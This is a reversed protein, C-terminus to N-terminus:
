KILETIKNISMKYGLRCTNKYSFKDYVNFQRGILAYFDKFEGFVYLNLFPEDLIELESVVGVYDSWVKQPLENNVILRYLDDSIVTKFSSIKDNAEIMAVITSDAAEYVLGIRLKPLTTKIENWYVHGTKEIFNGVTYGDLKLGMDSNSYIIPVIVTSDTVETGDTNVLLSDIVKDKFSIEGELLGIQKRLSKINNDSTAKINNYLKNLSKNLDDKDKIFTHLVAVSDSKFAISDQLAQQNQELVSVSMVSNHLEEKLNKNCYYQYTIVGVLIIAVILFIKTKLSIM